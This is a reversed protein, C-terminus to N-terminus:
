ANMQKYEFFLKDKYKKPLEKLKEKPIEKDYKPPIKAVGGASAWVYEIVDLIRGNIRWKVNGLQTLVDCLPGLNGVEITSM